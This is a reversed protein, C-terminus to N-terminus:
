LHGGGYLSRVFGARAKKKEEEEEQEEEEREQEDKGERGKGEGSRREKRHGGCKRRCNCCAKVAVSVNVCHPMM